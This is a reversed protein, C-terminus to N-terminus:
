QFCFFRSYGGSFITGGNEQKSAQDAIIGLQNETYHPLQHQQLECQQISPNAANKMNEALQKKQQEFQWRSYEEVSLTEYLPKLVIKAPPEQRQYSLLPKPLAVGVNQEFFDKRLPAQRRMM